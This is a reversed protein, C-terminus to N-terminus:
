NGYEAIIKDAEKADWYWPHFKYAAGISNIFKHALKKNQSAALMLKRQVEDPGRLGTNTFKNNYQATQWYEDFSDQMWEATFPAGARAVIQKLLLAMWKSAGNLGQALIPDNLIAADGVAFVVNGSPLRGVPKRVTPPIMGCVWEKELTTTSDAILEYILPQHKRVWEKSMDYQEAVDARRDFMDMGAGPIAEFQVYHHEEGSKSLYPAKIIEGVGAIVSYRSIQKNKAGPVGELQKHMNCGRTCFMAVQRQPGDFEMKSEDKEFLEMFQGRGAAIIVLDNKSAMREISDIDCTEIVIHGGRTEFEELWKSFKMRLDMCQAPKDFEGNVVMLKEGEPSFVTMHVEHILSHHNGQWFRLELEDEFTVSPDFQITVPRAPGDYIQRATMDSYITPEYGAKLLGFGLQLGAQGAGVVAIKRM